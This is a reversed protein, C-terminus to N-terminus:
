DVSPVKRLIRNIKQFFLKQRRKRKWKIVMEKGKLFDMKLTNTHFTLTAVKSTSTAFRSFAVCSLLKDHTCQKWLATFSSQISKKIYEKNKNHMSTCLKIYFIKCINIIKRFLNKSQHGRPATQAWEQDAGPLM